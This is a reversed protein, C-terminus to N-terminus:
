FPTCPRTGARVYRTASPPSRARPRTLFSVVEVRDRPHASPPDSWGGEPELPGRWPAPVSPRWRAVEGRSSTIGERQRRIEACCCFVHFDQRFHQTAEAPRGAVARSFFFVRKAAPSCRSTRPSGLRARNTAEPPSLPGAQPSSLTAEGTAEAERGQRRPPVRFGRRLSSPPLDNRSM